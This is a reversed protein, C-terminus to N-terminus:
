QVVACEHLTVHIVRSLCIGRLTVKEGIKLRSVDEYSKKALFCQVEGSEDGKFSVFPVGASDNGIRDVIGSVEIRKGLYKKHAEEVNKFESFLDQSTVTFDPQAPAPKRSRCAVFLGGCFILLTALALYKGLTNM